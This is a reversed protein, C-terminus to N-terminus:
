HKVPCFLTYHLFYYNIALASSVRKSIELLKQLQEKAFKQNALDIHIFTLINMDYMCLFKGIYM